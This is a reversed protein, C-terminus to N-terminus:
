TKLCGFGMRVGFLKTLLGNKATKFFLPKYGVTELERKLEWPFYFHAYGCKCYGKKYSLFSQFWSRLALKNPVTIALVGGNKLVRLTEKLVNIRNEKGPIHDITSFCAIKDFVNKRLPLARADCCILNVRSYRNKLERKAVYSGYKLADYCIDIGVILKANEHAYKIEDVPFFCGVNLIVKNKVTGLLYHDTVEKVKMYHIKKRPDDGLRRYQEILEDYAKKVIETSM